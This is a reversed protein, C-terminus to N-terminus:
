LVRNSLSLSLSLFFSLSLSLSLSLSDRNNGEAIEMTREHLLTHPHRQTDRSDASTTFLLHTVDVAYGHDMSTALVLSLVIIGVHLAHQHLRM